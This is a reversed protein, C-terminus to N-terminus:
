LRRRRVLLTCRAAVVLIGALFSDVVLFLIGLM